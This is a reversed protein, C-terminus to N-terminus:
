QWFRPLFKLADHTACVEELRRLAIPIFEKFHPKGLNNSLNAYAGLAQMLRQAACLSFYELLQSEDRKREEAYISLLEKREEERIEVYPDLLLSALDYEALGLRVGQYDILYAQNDKIMVNQSQFDRHVLCRPLSALFERLEKLAEHAPILADVQTNRKLEGEVLHTLFYQQEWLYLEEDFGPEMTGLDASTLSHEDVRHLKGVERLASVYLPKRVSWPQDHTAWLDQTGLDELWVILNKEDHALVQPVKVGLEVLQKTIPVFRINDPRAMTYTMLIASREVDEGFSLRYYRRDSGGKLIPELGVAVPWDPLFKTTLNLLEETEFM